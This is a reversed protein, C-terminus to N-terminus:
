SPEAPADAAPASPKRGRRRKRRSLVRSLRELAEAASTLQADSDPPERWAVTNLREALALLAHRRAEDTIRREIRERVQPYITDLFALREATTEGQLAAPLGHRLPQEDPSGVAPAATRAPAPRATTPADSSRAESGDEERKPRRRRPESSPEIVQAEAAVARWDFRIEPYQAELYDMTSPELPVGGARVGVPGRFAYLIRSRQRGAEQFWHMLYTTEYGRKDRIVRLFPV